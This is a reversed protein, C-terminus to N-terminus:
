RNTPLNNYNDCFEYYLRSWYDVGEITNDWTFADTISHEPTEWMTETDCLAEIDKYKTLNAVFKDYAGREQLFITLRALLIEKDTM